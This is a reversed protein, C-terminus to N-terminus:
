MARESEDCVDLSLGRYYAQGLESQKRRHGVVPWAITDKLEPMIELIQEVLTCALRQVSTQKGVEQISRVTKMARLLRARLEVPPSLDGTPEGLLEVMPVQLLKQWRYLESLPVDASPEEHEQVERISICLRRAVDRRTFGERRRVEGLRHLSPAAPVNSPPLAVPGADAVASKDGLNALWMMTSM